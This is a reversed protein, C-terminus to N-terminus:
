DSDATSVRPLLHIERHLYAPVTTQKDVQAVGSRDGVSISDYGMMVNSVKLRTEDRQPSAFAVPERPLVRCLSDIEVYSLHLSM